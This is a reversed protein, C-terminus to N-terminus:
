DDLAAFVVFNNEMLGTERNLGDCTMLRLEPGSANGYVELTPFGGVSKDVEETRYVTFHAVSDDKRTVTISDGPEMTPLDAFIGPGGELANRHGLIVSPGVEGPTPSHVYWGPPSGGHYPPVEIMGNDQLGLQMTEAGDVGIAPVSITVPQSASMGEPEPEETPEATPSSTGTSSPDSSPTPEDQEPTTHEHSPSESQVAAPAVPDESGARNASDSCGTMVLVAAATCVLLGARRGFTRSMM